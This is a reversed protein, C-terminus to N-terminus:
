EHAKLFAARDKIATSLFEKLPKGEWHALEGADPERYFALVYLKTVEAKTMPTDNVNDYYVMKLAARFPSTWTKLFPSYSDFYHDVQDSKYLLVAHGPITVQLPTHKLEHKLNERSLDSLFEYRVSLNTIPLAPIDAYYTEWTFDQPTPWLYEPVVGNRVADAVRYLYNGQTTTGSKKATYRDSFNRDKGYFKLQTELVNLLSFTVCAMTDVNNPKQREGPPLCSTWDASPNREEFPITGGLWDTDRQGELLGKNPTM